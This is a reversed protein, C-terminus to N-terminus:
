PSGDHGPPPSRSPYAQLREGIDTVIGGVDLTLCATTHTAEREGFLDRASVAIKGAEGRSVTLYYGFFKSHLMSWPVDGCVSVLATLHRDVVSEVVDGAESATLGWTTLRGLIAIRVIDAPQFVHWGGAGPRPVLLKVQSRRVLHQLAYITLRAAYAAQPLRFGKVPGIDIKIPPM